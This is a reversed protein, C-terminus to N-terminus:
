STRPRARSRCTSRWASAPGACRATPRTAAGPDVAQPGAADHRLGAPSRDGQHPAHLLQDRLVRRLLRQHLGAGGPPQDRRAVVARLREDRLRPRLQGDQGDIARGRHHGRAGEEAGHRGDRPPHGGQARLGGQPARRRRRPRHDAARDALLGRRGAGHGALRRRVSPPHAARAADPDPHEAPEPRVILPPGNGRRGPPVHHPAPRRRRDADAAGRRVDLPAEHLDALRPGAPDGSARRHAGGPRDRGDFLRDQDEQGEPLKLEEFLIEGLQKPSGITFQHGVAAYIEEELRSIEAGFERDLVALAELDVGVGDAEMRALVPILPLEIERFLRELGEEQLSRALPDRVALASLAELGARHVPALEKPPPLILDLREAVVDAISQSRLAANLVYAAIQTDFDVRRSPQPPIQRSGRYSSRSPRTPSSRSTGHRWWTGFAM